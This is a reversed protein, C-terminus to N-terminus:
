ILYAKRAFLANFPIDDDIPGVGGVNHHPNLVPPQPQRQQQLSLKENQGSSEEKRGSAFVFKIVNGQLSSGISGDQKTFNRVHVDDITVAVSTGKSLYPVLAEAQKGWLSARVWQTPMKGDTGKRGYNYAIALETVVSGQPTEKLQGDTGLRGIVTM